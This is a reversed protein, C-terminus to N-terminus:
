QGDRLASLFQETSRGGTLDPAIGRLSALPSEEREEPLIEIATVDAASPYREKGGRSFVGRIEVFRGVARVADALLEPPFRCAVKAPGIDPYVRFVNAGQHLNIAELMGMLSSEYRERPELLLEIERKTEVTIALEIGNSAISVSAITHGVPGAMRAIMNAATADVDVAQNRTKLDHLLRGLAGIADHSQADTAIPVEEFCVRAPSSYNLATLRFYSSRKRGATAARDLETLAGQVLNLERLFDALRIRGGESALGELTLRAVTSPMFLLQNQEETM